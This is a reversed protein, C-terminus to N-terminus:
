DFLSEQTPTTAIGLADALQRANTVAQAGYHNNLFV